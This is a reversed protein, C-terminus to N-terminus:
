RSACKFYPFAQSATRALDGNYRGREIGIRNEAGAMQEQIRRVEENSWLDPKAKDVVMVLGGLADDLRCNAEIKQLMTVSSLATTLTKSVAAVAAREAPTIDGHKQVAILFRPILDLRHKLADEVALWTKPTPPLAGPSGTASAAPAKDRTETPSNLAPTYPKYQSHIYDLFYRGGNDSLNINMLEWKGTNPNLVAQASGEFTEQPPPLDKLFVDIRYQFTVAEVSVSTDLLSSKYKNSYTIKILKRTAVRRLQERANTHAIYCYNDTGYRHTVPVCEVISYGHQVLFSLLIKDANLYSTIVVRSLIGHDTTHAKAYHIAAAGDEPGPDIAIPQAFASKAFIVEHVDSPISGCGSLFTACLLASFTALIPQIQFHSRRASPTCAATQFEEHLGTSESQIKLPM